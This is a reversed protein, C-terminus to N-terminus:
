NHCSAKLRLLMAMHRREAIRDEATSQLDAGAFYLLVIQQDSTVLINGQHLDRHCIGFSHISDLVALLQGDLTRHTHSHWDFPEGQIFGTAVCFGQGSQGYGLLQPVHKGQFQQLRNYAEVEIQAGRIDDVSMAIRVAAVSGGYSGYFVTNSLKLTLVIDHQLKRWSQKPGSSSSSFGPDNRSSVIAQASPCVTDRRLKSFEEKSLPQDGMRQATSYPAVLSESSSLASFLMAETVSVHEADGRADAGVADSVLLNGLGDTKLFWSHHYTSIMGYLHGRRSMHGLEQSIAHCANYAADATLGRHIEGNKFLTCVTAVNVTHLDKLCFKTKAEIAFLTRRHVGSRELMIIAPVDAGEDLHVQSDSKRKRPPIGFRKAIGHSKFLLNLRGCATSDLTAVAGEEGLHLAESRYGYREYRQSRMAMIDPQRLREKVEECFKKWPAVTTPHTHRDEDRDQVSRSFRSVDVKPLPQWLLEDLSAHGDAAAGQQLLDKERVQELAKKDALLSANEALLLQLSSDQFSGPEAEDCAKQPRAVAAEAQEIKLKLKDQEESM